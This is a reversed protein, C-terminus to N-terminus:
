ATPTTQRIPNTSSPNTATPGASSERQSRPGPRAGAPARPERSEVIVRVGRGPVSTIHRTRRLEPRRDAPALQVRTLLTELVVRMELQAFAAGLCRRIGGGFPIWAYSPTRDDLFREPKFERPRPYLVPSQHIVGIAPAVVVGAPLEYGAITAPATLKRAVATIVPRLRLTEQAVADLYADDGEHAAATARALVAPNRLLCEVAWALATSTTEHGALLLTVIQDRLDEDDLGGQAEDRTQLLLSLIDRREALAPDARRAAIEGRLLANAAQHARRYRSWPWVHGLAPWLWLLMELGGVDALAPMTARFSDLRPGDSVGIVARLIVEFTLARMRQHLKFKSGLPWRDIEADTLERIIQAYQRVAEGHFLPLMLKRRYMHEQEDTVLVSREGLVPALLENGEGAHFVTADGTFVDKVDAPNALFVITGTPAFRATFVDGYRRHVLDFVQEGWPGWTLMTQIAMPLRPGPPLPASSNV